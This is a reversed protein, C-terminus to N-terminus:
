PKSNSATAAPSFEDPGEESLELEALEFAMAIEAEHRAEESNVKENLISDDEGLPPPSPERPPSLGLRGRIYNVEREIDLLDLECDELHEKARKLRLYLEEPPKDSAAIHEEVGLVNEKAEAVANERPEIQAVRSDLRRYLIEDHMMSTSEVTFRTLVVRTKRFHDDMFGKYGAKKILQNVTHEKTWGCTVPVDPFYMANYVVGKYDEFSILMGHVGIEWDLSDRATEYSVIVFITVELDDVIDSTIPMCHPDDTASKFVLERVSSFPQPLYSGMTGAQSFQREVFNMSSDPIGPVAKKRWRVFLPWRKSDDMAWDGDPYPIEVDDLFAELVDFCYVCIDPDIYACPHAFFAERADFQVLKGDESGFVASALIIDQVEQNWVTVIPFDPMESNKSM